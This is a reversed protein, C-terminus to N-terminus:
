KFDISDLIASSYVIGMQSIEYKTWYEETDHFKQLMKFFVNNKMIFEDWEIDIGDHNTDCVSLGWKFNDDILKADEPVLLRGVACGESEESVPSYKCIDHSTDNNRRKEPSNRYYEKTNQLIFKLVEDNSSNNFMERIEPKLRVRIM